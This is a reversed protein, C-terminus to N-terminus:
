ICQWGNTNSAHVDVIGYEYERGTSMPGNNWRGKSLVGGSKILLVQRYFTSQCEIQCVAQTYLIGRWIWLEEGLSKIVPICITWMQRLGELQLCTRQIMLDRGRLCCAVSYYYSNCVFFFLSPSFVAARIGVMHTRVYMHLFCMWVLKEFTLEVVVGM